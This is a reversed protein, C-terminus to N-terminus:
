ERLSLDRSKRSFNGVGLVHWLGRCWNGETVPERVHTGLGSETYNDPATLWRPGTPLGAGETGAAPVWNRGKKRQSHKQEAKGGVLGRWLPKKTM